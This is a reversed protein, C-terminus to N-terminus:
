VIRGLLIGKEFTDSIPDGPDLVLLALGDKVLDPVAHGERDLVEHPEPQGEVGVLKPEVYFVAIVSVCHKRDAARCSFGSFGHNVPHAGLATCGDRGSTQLDLRQGETGEKGLDVCPNFFEISVLAHPDATAAAVRM